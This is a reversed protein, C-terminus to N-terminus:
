VETDMLLMEEIKSHVFNFGKSDNINTIKVCFIQDDPYYAFISRVGPGGGTHYYKRRNVGYMEAKALFMGYGYHTDDNIKVHNTWLKEFNGKSIIQHSMLGQFFLFLDNATSYLGGGAGAVRMDIFDTNKLEKGVRDYPKARGKLISKYYDMGSDEMKLPEFIYKKLYEEYSLNSVKEIIYGLLFFGSISYSFMEGPKFLLPKNKFLNILEDNFSEAHYVNYFDAELDFNGVGSSNTLLHKITIQDGKPYDKLYKLIFDDEKLLGKEVLQMIAVATFIKTISAIRFKTKESVPADLEFDAMGYHHNFIVKSQHAILMSGNYKEDLLFQNIQNIKSKLM